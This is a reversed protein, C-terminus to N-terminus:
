GESKSLSVCGRIAVSQKRGLNARQSDFRIVPEDAVSFLFRIKGSLTVATKPLHDPPCLYQPVGLCFTPLRSIVQRDEEGASACLILKMVLDDFGKIRPQALM